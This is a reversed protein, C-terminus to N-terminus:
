QINLGTAQGTARLVFSAIGWSALVIVLGIVGSIIVKKAQGVQEENGAATMWKFGGILIIIVALIGLFGLITNVLSAAISRPDEEGLGVEEAYEVGLDVGSQALVGVPAIIAVALAFVTLSKFLKNM